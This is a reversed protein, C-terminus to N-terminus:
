KDERGVGRFLAPLGETGLSAGTYMTKRTRTGDGDYTAVRRRSSKGRPKVRVRAPPRNETVAQLLNSGDTIEVASQGKWDPSEESDSAESSVTLGWDVITSLGSPCATKM